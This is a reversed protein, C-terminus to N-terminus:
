QAELANLARQYDLVNSVFMVTNTGNVYGAKLHRYVESKELAPYRLQVDLWNNEDGGEQRTLTRADLLHPIGSYFAALAMPVQQDSPISQPIESLLSIFRRAAATNSETDEWNNLQFTLAALITWSFPEPMDDFRGRLRKMEPQATEVLHNIDPATVPTAPSLYRTSLQEFWGQQRRESFFDFMAAQLSDDQAPNLQWATNLYRPGQKYETTHFKDFTAGPVLIDIQQETLAQEMEAPDFYPLLQLEVDLFEAFGAVLEYDFGQKGQPGIEFRSPDYQIGVRLTKRAEIDDRIDPLSPPICGSLGTLLFTAVLLTRFPPFSHRSGSPKTYLM